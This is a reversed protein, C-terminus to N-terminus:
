IRAPTPAFMDDGGDSDSVTIDTRKPAAHAVTGVTLFLGFIVAFTAATAARSLTISRFINNLM